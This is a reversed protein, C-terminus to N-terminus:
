PPKAPLGSAFPNIEVHDMKDPSTYLYDVGFCQLVWKFCKPVRQPFFTFDISSDLCRHFPLPFQSSVVTLPASSWCLSSFPPVLLRGGGGEGSRSHTTRAYDPVDREQGSAAAM